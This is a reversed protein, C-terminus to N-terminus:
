IIKMKQIRLSNGLVFLSSIIMILAAVLPKLIGTVALGIGVVNYCFAWTLNERIKKITKKALRLSWPIKKLDNGLLSMDASERTIDTSCGIAIGIDAAMLAPADNIGDGVMACLGKKYSEIERIKDEPLLDSKTKVGISSTIAESADQNDGTIMIVDIEQDKLDSMADIVGERLEESFRILGKMEKDWGFFVISKGQSEPRKKQDLIATNLMLGMKIMFKESGTYLTRGNVKGQAGLGPYAKFDSVPPISCGNESAFRVFSKGLPHESSSEVSAIIPIVESERLGSDPDIFISSVNLSGKTITGTKDFFIGKIHSLKEVTEGTRVVVGQKALRGIAVWIAMPTAIGLACPCSILLVSLSNM